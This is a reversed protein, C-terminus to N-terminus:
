QASPHTIQAWERDFERMAIRARRRNRLWCIPWTIQLLLALVPIGALALLFLALLIALAVALLMTIM